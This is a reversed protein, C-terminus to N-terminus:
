LEGRESSKFVLEARKRSPINDITRMPFKTTNVYFTSKGTAPNREEVLASRSGVKLVRTQTGSFFGVRGFEAKGFKRANSHRVSQKHWGSGYTKAKAM